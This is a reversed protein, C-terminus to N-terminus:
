RNKLSGEKADKKITGSNVIFMMRSIINLTLLLTLIDLDTGWIEPLQQSM